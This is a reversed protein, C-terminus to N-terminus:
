ESIIVIVTNVYRDELIELHKRIKKSNSNNLLLKLMLSPVTVKLIM